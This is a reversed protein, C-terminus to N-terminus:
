CTSTKRIDKFVSSSESNFLFQYLQSKLVLKIKISLIATSCILTTRDTCINWSYVQQIYVCYLANCLLYYAHIIAVSIRM